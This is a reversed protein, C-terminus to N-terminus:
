IHIKKKTLIEIKIIFFLNKKKFNNVAFRKPLKKINYNINLWYVNKNEKANIYFIIEFIFIRIIFGSM